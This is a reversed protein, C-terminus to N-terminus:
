RIEELGYKEAQSVGGKNWDKENYQFAWERGFSRLMKERAEGFTAGRVMFYRGAFPQGVGFTFYWTERRPTQELASVADEGAEGL